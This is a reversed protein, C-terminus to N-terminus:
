VVLDGRGPQASVDVLEAREADLSLNNYVKVFDYGATKQSAVTAQAEAATQVVAAGSWVPPEGDVIPGATVITPGLRDGREIAARRHLTLPTGWMNRVLTVGAAVNLILAAASDLHAHADVLGPLLFKGAADVRHAGDPITVEARPGIAAIKGDAVLVTQDLLRRESDMPIVTVGVFAMTEVAPPAARVLQAGPRRCSAAPLAILLLRKMQLLTHRLRERTGGLPDGRAYDDHQETYRSASPVRFSALLRGAASPHQGVGHAESPVARTPLGESDLKPWPQELSKRARRLAM